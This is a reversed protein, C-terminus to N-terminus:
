AFKWLNLGTAPDKQRDITGAICRLVLECTASVTARNLHGGRVTGQGDAASMHLHCYFQGQMTDVTGTLSVIEYSGSYERSLYVQEDVSYVGVTFRDVAGLGQVSALPIQETRALRALQELIEEGRELRVLLTDDFRRYEM